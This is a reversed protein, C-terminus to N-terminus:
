ESDSESEETDEFSYTSHSLSIDSIINQLPENDDINIKQKIYDILSEAYDKYSYLKPETNEIKPHSKIIYDRMKHPIKSFSILSDIYYSYYDKYIKSTELSNNLIIILIKNENKALEWEFKTYKCGESLLLSFVDSRKIMYENRKLITIPSFNDFEWGDWWMSHRINLNTNVLLGPGSIIYNDKEVCILEKTLDNYNNISEINQPNIGNIGGWNESTLLRHDSSGDVSVFINRMVNYNTPKQQYYYEEMYGSRFSYSFKMPEQMKGSFYFKFKSLKRCIPCKVDLESFCHDCIPYNCACKKFKTVDHQPNCCCHCNEGTTEM